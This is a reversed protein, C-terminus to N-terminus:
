KVVGDKVLLFRYYDSLSIPFYLARIRGTFSNINTAYFLNEYHKFCFYELYIFDIISDSIYLQLMLIADKLIKEDSKIQKLFDLTIKCRRKIEPKLLKNYKWTRIISKWINSISKKNNIPASYTAANFHRRQKVLNKNMIHISNYAEAVMILISDYYRITAIDSYDPILQLLRKHFLLTHGGMTGIFLQRLLSCNPTRPDIRIPVNGKSFPTSRGGCLLNNEISQIQLELKYNEWIDDQDSIAIYDGTAKSIANFFNPNVGKNMPNRYVHIISYKLQYENLISFTNDTSCDDQIIIEHIPYTQYLISDIQERIYKEGNYTCLVVSVKYKINKNNM